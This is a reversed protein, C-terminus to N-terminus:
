WFALATAEEVATFPKLLVPKNGQLLCIKRSDPNSHYISIRISLSYTIIIGCPMYCNQWGPVKITRSIKRGTEPFFFDMIRVLGCYVIAGRMCMVRGVIIGGGVQM